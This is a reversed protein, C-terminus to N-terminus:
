CARAYDARKQSVGDSVVSSSHSAGVAEAVAITDHDFPSTECVGLPGNWCVTRARNVETVEVRIFVRQSQLALQDVTTLTM